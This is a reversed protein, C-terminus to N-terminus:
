TACPSPGTRRRHDGLPHQPSDPRDQPPNGAHPRCCAGLTLDLRSILDHRRPHHRRGLRSTAPGQPRLTRGHGRDELRGDRGELGPGIAVAPRHRGADQPLHRLDARATSRGPRLVLRGQAVATPHDPTRGRPPGVLSRDVRGSPLGHRRSRRSGPLSPLRPMPGDARTSQRSPPGLFPVDRLRFDHHLRIRRQVRGRRPGRAAAEVRIPRQLGSLSDPRGRLSRAGRRSSWLPPLEAHHEPERPRRGAFDDLARDRCPHRSTM